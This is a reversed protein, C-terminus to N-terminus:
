EGLSPEKLNFARDTSLHNRYRELTLLFHTTMYPRSQKFRNTLTLMSNYFILAQEASQGKSLDSGVKFFLM